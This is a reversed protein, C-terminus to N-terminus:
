GPWEFAGAECNTGTPRPTGHLDVTTIPTCIGPPVLNIEPMGANPLDYIVGNDPPSSSWDARHAVVLAPVVIDGPGCPVNTAGGDDTWANYSYKIVATNSCGNPNTDNGKNGNPGYNGTMQVSADSPFDTGSFGVGANATNFAILFNGHTASASICFSCSGLSDLYNGVVTVNTFSGQTEDFFLVQTQSNYFENNTIWLNKGGLIHAADTHCSNCDGQPPPGLSTPWYKSGFRAEGQFLNSSVTVNTSPAYGPRMGIMLETPSSGDQGNALLGCCVPGVINHDVTVNQASGMEITGGGPDPAGAAVVLNTLTIHDAYTPTDFDSYLKVQGFQGGQGMVGPTGFHFNKNAGGDIVVHNPPPHAACKCGGGLALATGPSWSDGKVAVITVLGDPEFTVNPGTTGKGADADIELDSYTGPPIGVVDGPQAAKYAQNWSQGNGCSISASYPARTAQRTCSGVTDGPKTVWVNAKLSGGGGGGNGVTFSTTSTGTGGPGTVSIPGTKAGSPVSATIQTDSNVAFAASTGNFLVSTAGTFGSGAIAVSTGASGSTPNFSLVIPLPLSTVTFPSSSTGTGGPGTVAIPGNTAGTPVTTTIQSDSQVTYTATAGNFAVATAGTFSSGTLTVITGFPGSTPSFSTIAPAIPGPACPKTSASIGSKQSHDGRGDQDDAQLLHTTGCQLGVFTWSTGKTVGVVPGDLYLDYQL